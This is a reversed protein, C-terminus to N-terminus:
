GGPLIELMHRAIPEGAFTDTREGWGLALIRRAGAGAYECVWARDATPISGVQGTQGVRAMARAALRYPAGQHTLHEPTAQAAPSEVLGSVVDLVLPEDVGPRVALWRVRGADAIRYLRTVKGDDDLTIAGEVIYDVGLHTVVDGPRLSALSPEASALRLQAREATLAEDLGEGRSRKWLAYSLFSLGAVVGIVILEM